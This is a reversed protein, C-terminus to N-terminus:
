KPNNGPGYLPPKGPAHGPVNGPGGRGDEPGVRRRIEKPYHSQPLDMWPGTRSQSYSWRQNNYYYHYGQQYYYPETGLEVILPLAPVVITVGARQAPWAHQGWGTLSITIRYPRVANPRYRAAARTQYVKVEYTGSYPLAGHMFDQNGRGERGLYDVDVVINPDSNNTRVRLVQGRQAEFRYTHVEHGRLRGKITRSTIGRSFRVDGSRNVVYGDGPAAVATGAVGVGLSLTMSLAVAKVLSSKKM